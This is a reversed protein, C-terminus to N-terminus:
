FIFYFFDTAEGARTKATLDLCLRVGQIGDEKSQTPQGKLQKRHLQRGEGCLLECGCDGVPLAPFRLSVAWVLARGM